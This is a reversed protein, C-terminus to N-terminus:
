PRSGEEVQFPIETALDVGQATLEGRLRYGGPTTPAEVRASGARARKGPVWDKGGWSRSSPRTTPGAIANRAM